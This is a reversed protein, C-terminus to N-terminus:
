QTAEASRAAALLAAAFPEILEDPVIGEACNPYGGMESAEPTDRAISFEVHDKSAERNVYGDSRSATFDWEREGNPWEGVEPLEVVAHTESLVALVVFAVHERLANAVAEERPPEPETVLYAGCSCEFGYRDVRGTDPGVLMDLDTAQEHRTLEDAVAKQAADSM